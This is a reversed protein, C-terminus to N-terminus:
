IRLLQLESLSPPARGRVASGPATGHAAAAVAPLTGPAAAPAPLVPAGATGPAACTPDAHLGHGDSGGDDPCACPGAPVRDGATHHAAPAAAPMTHGSAPKLPGPGLGHMAVIGTLLAFLLFLRAPPGHRGDRRGARTSM